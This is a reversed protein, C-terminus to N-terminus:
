GGGDLILNKPIEADLALGTEALWVANLHSIVLEENTTDLTPLRVAGAVMEERREFYYQDHPSLPACYTLVNAAQGSRGARGARQVYNAPTPPVNRLYVSNLTSIDIGLEMTPSCFLAPLFGDSEGTSEIEGRHEYDKMKEQDDDGFRFRWERWERQWQTVQATHERGELGWLTSTGEALDDSISRYLERFYAHKEYEENSETQVAKGKVLHLASPNLSWGTDEEGIKTSILYDDKLFDILRQIFGNYEQKNLKRGLVDNSNIQKAIRSQYGARLIMQDDILKQKGRIPHPVMFTKGRLKENQDITWPWRLVNRAQQGIKDLEMLNLSETNVAQGEVMATFLIKIVNARANLDMDAFEPLVSSMSKTNSVIQELGLFDLEILNLVFLNPNTYRWERRLDNWVRFSLIKALTREADSQVSLGGKPNQMWYKQTDRNKANFGLANAVSCGFEGDSLGAEGAKDIAQLIGGRLLSVFLFDNFHGSQLAADQRNDTFGLIKRSSKESVGNEPREMWKLASTVLQTTASSRGGGSIGVLRNREFTTPYPEKRCCLCFCFKGPIFWFEKGTTNEKGDPGVFVKAPEMKRRHSAIKLSGKYERVWTEPYSEITGDFAFDTTCDPVPCLYGAVEQVDGEIPSDDASRSVFRAKGEFVLKTVLHYEQGCDGCFKTTYLRVGDSGPVERQGDFYVSRDSKTLTTFVDGANSVFRHLKFPLFSQDGDGGRQNEPLSVASLFEELRKRCTEIDVGSDQSLTHTVTEFPVPPKRERHQGDDLGIALEVWVALPHSYLRTQHLIKPLPEELVAKLNAIAWDLTLNENTARNLSENIISNGTFKAGFLRKAVEAIADNANQETKEPIMTASTGICIPKIDKAQCCRERLRRVLVAVDAGQRGRYTHFEDLVIFELGKANEMVQVDISDQRTLLLEAMMYNTLIIDAPNNAIYEREKRSEQGTFRSVKPRNSLPVGSQELFKNIEKLQSNALANMPYIIIAKTSREKGGVKLDRIIKDVIPIFFCLSKGSGTGSTVIFNERNKAKSIAEAQHRYLTLTQGDDLRFIQGTEKTLIEENVLNEITLSNLYRPNLSLLPSPWFRGSDYAKGITDRLDDARIDAFSRTFQEYSQVIKSDFNFAKM